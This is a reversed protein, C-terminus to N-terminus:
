RKFKLALVKDAVCSGQVQGSVVAARFHIGAYMRSLAAEDAAAKFSKFTRPGWGRDNHTNDTFATNAGYISGLVTAAASSQVSHGSPFEPFPPTHMLGPVWNSDIVLQVY